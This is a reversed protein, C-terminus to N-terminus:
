DLSHTMFASEPKCTDRKSRLPSQRITQTKYLLIKTLYAFVYPIKPKNNVPCFNALPFM